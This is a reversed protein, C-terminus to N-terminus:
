CTSGRLCALATPVRITREYFFQSDLHLIVGALGVIVALWGILHGIDRWVMPARRRLTILLPLV